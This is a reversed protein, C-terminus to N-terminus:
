KPSESPREPSAGAAPAASARRSRIEDLRQRIRQETGRDTPHYFVTGQLRDPLCDMTNLADEFQHAHQYGEGYGWQKMHRTSANRLQMPVPEALNKQVTERAQNLAKYAADSKPAIALYLAVQALAQDGEPIGLLHVTQQAAIAQEM